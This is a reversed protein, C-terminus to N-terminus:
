VPPNTLHEGPMVDHTEFNSIGAGKTEESVAGIEFVLTDESEVKSQKDM